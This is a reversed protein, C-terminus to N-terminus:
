PCCGAGMLSILHAIDFGDLVGDRNVDAMAALSAPHLHLGNGLLQAGSLAAQAQRREFSQAPLGLATAMWLDWDAM